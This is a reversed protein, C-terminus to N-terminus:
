KKCIEDALRLLTAKCDDIANDYGDCEHCVAGKKEPMQEASWRLLDSLSSLLWYKGERAIRSDKDYQEFYKTLRYDFDELIAEPSKGQNEM